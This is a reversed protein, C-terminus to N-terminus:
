REKDSSEELEKETEKQKEGHLRGHGVFGERYAMGKTVGVVLLLLALLMVVVFAVSGLYFPTIMQLAPYIPTRTVLMVYSNNVQIPAYSILMRLLQTDFPKPLALDGVGAKNTKLMQEVDDVIVPSGLFLNERLLELINKNIYDANDSYVIDGKPTIISVITDDTIRLNDLYVETLKDLSIGLVLSGDFKGNVHIPTVMGFVYGLQKEEEHGPVDIDTFCIEGLQATIAWEICAENSKNDVGKYEVQDVNTAALVRNGESDFRFFVVVPTSSWKDVFTQMREQTDDTVFVLDTDEPLLVLTKSTLDIFSSISIAGMQTVSKQQDMYQQTLSDVARQSMTYYLISSSVILFLTAIM